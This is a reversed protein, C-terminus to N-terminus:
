GALRRRLRAIGRLIAKRNKALKLWRPLRNVVDRGRWGVRAGTGLPRERLDAAVYRELLDLHRLNLAWLLEGGVRTTLFLPADFFWETAAGIKAQGGPHDAVYACAGCVLRRPGFVDRANVRLSRALGGCAPCTVLIEDSLEWLWTGPDRFRARPPTTPPV